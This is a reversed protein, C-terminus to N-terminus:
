APKTKTTIVNFSKFNRNKFTKIKKLDGNFSDFLIGKSIESKFKVIFRDTKYEKLELALDPFFLMPSYVDNGVSQNQLQILSSKDSYVDESTSSANIGNNNQNEEHRANVPLPSFTTFLLSLMLCVSIFVKM